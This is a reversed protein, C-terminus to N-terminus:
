INRIYKNYCPVFFCSLLIQKRAKKFLRFPPQAASLLVRSLHQSKVPDSPGFGEGEASIFLVSILREKKHKYKM